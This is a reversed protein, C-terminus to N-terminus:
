KQYILILCNQYVVKNQLLNLVGQGVFFPQPFRESIRLLQDGEGCNLDMIFQFKEIPLLELADDLLKTGKRVLKKSPRPRSRQYEREGYVQPPFQLDLLAQAAMPDYPLKDAPIPM